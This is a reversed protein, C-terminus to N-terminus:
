KMPEIKAVYYRSRLIRVTYCINKSIVRVLIETRLEGKAHSYKEGM